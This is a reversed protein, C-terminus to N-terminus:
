FDSLMRYLIDKMISESISTDFHILCLAFQKSRKAYFKLFVEDEKPARRNPGQHCEMLRSGVILFPMGNLQIKSGKEIKSDDEFRICHQSGIDFFM